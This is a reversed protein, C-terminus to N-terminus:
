KKGKKAAYKMGYAMMESKTMDKKVEKGMMKMPKKSDKKKM